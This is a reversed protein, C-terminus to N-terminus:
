LVIVALITLLIAILLHVWSFVIITQNFEDEIAESMVKVQRVVVFAFASYMVLGVVLFWKVVDFLTVSLLWDLNNM